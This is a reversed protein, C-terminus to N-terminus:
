SLFQFVILMLVSCDTWEAGYISCSPAPSLQCYKQSPNGTWGLNRSPLSSCDKTASHSFCRTFKSSDSQIMFQHTCSSRSHSYFIPLTLRALIETWRPSKKCNPSRRIFSWFIPNWIIKYWNFCKNLRDYILEKM